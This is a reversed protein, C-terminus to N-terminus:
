EVSALYHYNPQGGYVVDVQIGPFAEGLQRGLEAVAEASTEAGPYFTVVQDQSHVVRDIISSLAREPTDGSTVLEGDLLGIYQGADVTVGGITSARVARTVEITAVGSLANTMARLNHEM